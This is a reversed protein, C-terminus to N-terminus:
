KTLFLATHQHHIRKIFGFNFLYINRLTYKNSSYGFVRRFWHFICCRRAFRGCISSKGITRCPQYDNGSIDKIDCVERSFPLYLRTISQDNVLWNWFVDVTDSEVDSGYPAITSTQDLVISSGFYGTPDLAIFPTTATPAANSPSVEDVVDDCNNDFGDCLEIATPFIDANSDDCDVGADYPETCSDGYGDGDGDFVCLGMELVNSGPFVSNLDDDCDTGADYGEPPNSSGYGDGDSDFVRSEGIENSSGPFLDPDTDDCDTAKGVYSEVPECGNMTNSSTGFQDGDEDFYWEM